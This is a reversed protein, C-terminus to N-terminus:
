VRKRAKPDSPPQRLAARNPEHANTPKTEARKLIKPPPTKPTQRSCLLAEKAKGARITVNFPKFITPRLPNSFHNLKAM